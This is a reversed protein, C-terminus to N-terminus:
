GRHYPPSLLTSFLPRAANLLPQTFPHVFCTACAGGAHM